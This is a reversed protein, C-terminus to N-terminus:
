YGGYGTVPTAPPGSYVRVDIGEVFWPPNPVDVPGVFVVTTGKGVTSPRAYWKRNLPHFPVTSAM